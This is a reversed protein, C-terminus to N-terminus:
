IEDLTRRVSDIYRNMESSYYDNCIAQNSEHFQRLRADDPKISVLRNLEKTIALLRECHDEITDYDHDIIDDLLDFGISRMKAIIGQVGVVVFPVGAIIPKLSKETLRLTGNASFETETVIHYPASGFFSWPISSCLNHTNISDDGIKRTPLGRVFEVDANSLHLGSYNELFNRFYKQTSSKKMNDNGWWSYNTLPLLGNKRLLIMLGIRHPRPIGNLLTFSYKSDNEQTESRPMAPRSICEEKVLLLPYHNYELWRSVGGKNLSNATILIPSTNSSSGSLMMSLRKMNHEGISPAEECADLVLITKDTSAKERFWLPIQSLINGFHPSDISSALNWTSHILRLHVRRSKEVFLEIADTPASKMSIPMNESFSLSPAPEGPSATFITLLDDGREQLFNVWSCTKSCVNHFFDRHDFWITLALQFSSSSCLVPLVRAMFRSDLHHERVLKELRIIQGTEALCVAYAHLIKYDKSIQRAINYHSLAACPADLKMYCNGVHYHHWHNLESDQCSLYRYISLADLYKRKQFLASAEKETKLLQEIKIKNSDM